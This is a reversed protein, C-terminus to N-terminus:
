TESSFRVLGGDENRVKDHRPM